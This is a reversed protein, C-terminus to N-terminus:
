QQRLKITFLNLFIELIEDPNYSNCFAAYENFSLFYTILYEDVRGFGTPRAKYLCSGRRIALSM